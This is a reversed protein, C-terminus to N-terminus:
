LHKTAERISLPSLTDRRADVFARVWDPDTRALHRLAWGIAKRVFFERDAANADIADALLDLDTAERHGLQAIIAVRRRWLVESTMWDRLLATTPERHALLVGGVLPAVGDVHDWWAGDVVLHDYLDFADPTQFARARRDGCLDVAAYRDERFAADDWLARVTTEWTAAGPWVGGDLVARVVKRREPSAVGRFPMTSKMYAQMGPAKDPTAAADLGAHVREVVEDAVLPRATV